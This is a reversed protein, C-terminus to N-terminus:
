PAIYAVYMTNFGKIVRAGPALSAVVESGTAIGFSKMTDVPQLTGDLYDFQNTTDVLIRGGWDPLGSLAARLDPWAVALFVLAAAAAERVTGASTRPGLGAVWAQARSPWVRM